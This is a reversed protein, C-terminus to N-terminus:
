TSRSRLCSTAPPVLPSSSRGGHVARPGGRRRAPRGAAHRRQVVREGLLQHEDRCAADLAPQALPEGVPQTVGLAAVVADTGPDLEPRGGAQDGLDRPVRSCSGHAGSARTQGSSVTTSALAPSAQARVSLVWRPWPWSPRPLDLEAAPAAVGDGPPQGPQETRVGRLAGGQEGVPLPVVVGVPGTAGERGVEGPLGLEPAPQGGLDPLRRGALPMDADDLRQASAGSGVVQRRPERQEPVGSDGHGLDLEEAASPSCRSTWRHSGCGEAASQSERTPVEPATGRRASSEWRRPRGGAARRGRGPRARAGACAEIPPELTASASRPTEFGRAGTAPELM